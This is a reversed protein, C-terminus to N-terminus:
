VPELAAACGAMWGSMTSRPLWIKGLRWYREQLRYLTSHYCYKSVIINALVGADVKCRDIPNAHREPEPATVVTTREGDDAPAVYKAQKLVHVYLRAPEEVLSERVDWGIFKLRRGTESDSKQEESLDVEEVRRELHEPLIQRGTPKRRRKKAARPVEETGDGEKDDAGEELETIIGELIMQAADGPRDSKPGYLRRLLTAKELELSRIRKDRRALQEELEGVRARMLEMDALMGELRAELRAVAGDGGHPDSQNSPKM